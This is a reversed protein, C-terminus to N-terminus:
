SRGKEVFLVRRGSRALRYGLMGGGMGTGVVIVDWMVREAERARLDGDALDFEEASSPGFCPGTQAFRSRLM